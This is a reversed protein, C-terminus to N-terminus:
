FVERCQPAIGLLDHFPQRPQLPHEDDAALLVALVDDDAHRVSGQGMSM